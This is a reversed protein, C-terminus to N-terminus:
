RNCGQIKHISIDVTENKHINPVNNGKVDIIRFINITVDEEDTM